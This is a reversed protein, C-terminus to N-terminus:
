QSDYISWLNWTELHLVYVQITNPSERQNVTRPHELARSDVEKPGLRTGAGASCTRRGRVKDEGADSILLAPGRAALISETWYSCHSLPWHSRSDARAQAPNLPHTLSHPNWPASHPVRLTPSHMHILTADPLPVGGM